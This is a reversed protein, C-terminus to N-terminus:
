PQPQDPPSMVWGFRSGADSLYGDGTHAPSNWYIHLMGPSPNPSPNPNPNPNPSPNPSPSPNCQASLRTVEIHLLRADFLDGDSM